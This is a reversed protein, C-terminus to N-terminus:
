LCSIHVDARYSVGPSQESAAKKPNIPEKIFGDELKRLLSMRSRLSVSWPFIYFYIDTPQKSKKIHQNYDNLSTPLLSCAM